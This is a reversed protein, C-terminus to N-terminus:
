FTTKISKHGLLEQVYRTDTKAIVNGGDRFFCFDKVRCGRM